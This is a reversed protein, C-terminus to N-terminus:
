CGADFRPSLFREGECGYAVDGDLVCGECEVSDERKEQVTGREDSVSVATGEGFDQGAARIRNVHSTTQRKLERTGRGFPVDSGCAVSLLPRGLYGLTTHIERLSGKGDKPKKLPRKLLSQTLVLQTLSSRSSM